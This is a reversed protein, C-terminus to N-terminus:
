RARPRGAAVELRQTQAVQSRHIAVVEFRQPEVGEPLNRPADYGLYDVGTLDTCVWYGDERLKRVLDPYAERDPHVCPQGASDSTPSDHLM